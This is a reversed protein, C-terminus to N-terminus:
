SDSGLVEFALMNSSQDGVTVVVTTAGIPAAAPVVFTALTDTYSVVDVDIMPPSIGLAITAPTNACDGSSGDGTCLRTGTLAVVQNAAASPPAITELRPGGDDTSCGLLISAVVAARIV